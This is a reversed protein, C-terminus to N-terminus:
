RANKMNVQLSVLIKDDGIFYEIELGKKSPRHELENILEQKNISLTLANDDKSYGYSSKESTIRIAYNLSISLSLPIGDELKSAELLQNAELKSVKFGISNDQIRIYM